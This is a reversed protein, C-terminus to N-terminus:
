VGELGFKGKSGRLAAQLQLIKKEKCDRLGIGGMAGGCTNKLGQPGPVGLYLDSLTWFSRGLTEPGLVPAGRTPSQALSPAPGFVGSSDKPVRRPNKGSEPGFLGPSGHTPNPPNCINADYFGPLDVDPFCLLGKYSNGYIM